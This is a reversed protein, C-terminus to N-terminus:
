HIQGTLLDFQSIPEEEGEIFHLGLLQGDEARVHLSADNDDQIEVFGSEGEEYVITLRKNGLQVSIDPM